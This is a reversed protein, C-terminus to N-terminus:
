CLIYIYICHHQGFFNILHTETLDTLTESKVIKMDSIPLFFLYVTLNARNHPIVGTLFLWLFLREASSESDRRENENPSFGCM